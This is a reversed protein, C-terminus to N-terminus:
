LWFSFVCIVVFTYLSVLYNTISVKSVLFYFVFFFFFLGFSSLSAVVFHM